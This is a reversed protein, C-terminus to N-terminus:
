DNEFKMKKSKKIEYKTNFFFFKKIFKKYKFEIIIYM